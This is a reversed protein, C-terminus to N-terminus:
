LFITKSRWSAREKQRSEDPYGLTILGQPQWDAPLKLINRVLQPAFLPACLWCAGLGAEHALLWMNQAAMAVSQAAMAQEAQARRQDPYADMDAMSLCVVIIIPANSIRDYSRAVDREVVKPDDGDALRDARLKEGMGAALRSKGDEDELVAFRWPQRNHASPAWVAGDLLRELLARPVTRNQYQRIARRNKIIGAIPSPYTASKRKM